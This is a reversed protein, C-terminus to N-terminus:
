DFFMWSIGMRFVRDPMMYHPLYYYPQFYGALLNDMRIFFNVPKIRGSFYVGLQPYNGAQFPNSMISYISTAPNYQYTEFYGIASIIKFGTNVLLNKKFWRGQYYIDANVFHEPLNIADANKWQYYYNLNVGLHQFFVKDIDTKLQHISLLNAYQQPYNDMFYIYNEYLLLQYSIEFFQKYKISTGFQQGVMEKFRNYWMFHNSYWFNEQFTPSQKFLNTSFKFNFNKFSSSVFLDILYNDKQTGYFIYQIKRGITTNLKQFLKFSTQFNGTIFHNSIITDFFLHIKNWQYHYTIQFISKKQRFSYSVPININLSNLSDNTKLTDLFVFQYYGSQPFNDKYQFKFQQASTGISITQPKTSDNNIQYHFNYNFINSQIMKQANSLAVPILTKEINLNAFSLTDDTIGGNEQHKLINLIIKGDMSIKKKGFFHYDLGLNTFSSKQFQYFGTYTSRKLYFNIQHNQKIPSSFLARFHQEDKSGAIGELRSFFGKTRYTPFNEENLFDPIYLNTIRSGLKPNINQLLYDPQATGVQGNFYIPLSNQFSQISTDIYQYQNQSPNLFYFSHIKEFFTSDTIYTTQAFFSTTIFLYMCIFFKQKGNSFYNTLPNLKFNSHNNNLVYQKELLSHLFSYMAFILKVFENHNEKAFKAHFTYKKIVKFM